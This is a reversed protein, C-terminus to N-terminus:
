AVPAYIHIIAYKNCNHSFLNISIKHKIIPRINLPQQTNACHAIAQDLALFPKKHIIIPVIIPNDKWKIM